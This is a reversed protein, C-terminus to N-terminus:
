DDNGRTPSDPEPPQDSRPDDMYIRVRGRADVAKIRNVDRGDFPVREASLVQGRSSREVRRVSDSLADDDRPPSPMETPGHWPPSPVEPPGHWPPSPVEPPGHGAPPMALAAMSTTAALVALLCSSLSHRLSM